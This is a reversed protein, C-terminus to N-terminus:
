KNKPSFRYNCNPCVVMPGDKEYEVSYGKHGAFQEALDAFNDGHNGLTYRRVERKGDYVVAVNFDKPKNTKGSTEQEKPESNNPNDPDEEKAPKNGVAEAKKVSRELVEASVGVYPLGLEKAKKQLDKYKM